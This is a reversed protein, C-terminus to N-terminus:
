ATRQGVDPPGAPGPGGPTVHPRHPRPRHHGRVQHDRYRVTNRHVALASAARGVDGGADLYARVTAVLAVDARATSTLLRPIPGRGLHEGGEVNRALERLAVRSQVEDYSATRAGAGDEALVELVALADRRSGPVGRPDAVPAGMAGLLEIGFNIRTRECLEDLLSRARAAPTHADLCMVIDVRGAIQPAVLGPM